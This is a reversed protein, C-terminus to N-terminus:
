RRVQKGLVRNWDDIYARFEDPRSTIFQRAVSLLLPRMDGYGLEGANIRRVENDLAVLIEEPTIPHEVINRMHKGM